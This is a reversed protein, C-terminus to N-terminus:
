NYFFTEWGSTKKRHLCHQSSTSWGLDGTPLKCCEVIGRTPHRRRCGEWPPLALEPNCKSRSIIIIKNCGKKNAKRVAAM